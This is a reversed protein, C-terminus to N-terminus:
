QECLPCVEPHPLGRKAILRGANPIRPWGCLSNASGQRGVKGFGRWPNFQVAGIFMAEYASKASYRGSLAFQWIHTDEIEPQM